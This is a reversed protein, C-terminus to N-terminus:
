NSMLVKARLCIRIKEYIKKIKEFKFRGWAGLMQEM